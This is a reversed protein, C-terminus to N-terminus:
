KDNKIIHIDSPQIRRFVGTSLEIFFDRLKSISTVVELASYHFSKKSPSRKAKPLIDSPSALDKRKARVAKVSAKFIKTIDM